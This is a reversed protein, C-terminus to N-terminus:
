KITITRNFDLRFGNTEAFFRKKEETKLTVFHKTKKNSIFAKKFRQNITQSTNILKITNKLQEIAKTKFAGTRDNKLEVLFISNRFTLMGDCTSEKEKSDEKPIVICNDIPTFVIEEQNDNKVIAIWNDKNDLNSYAAVDNKDDCLGFEADKRPTESCITDFFDLSM